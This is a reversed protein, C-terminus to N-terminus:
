PSYLRRGIEAQLAPKAQEGFVAHSSCIAGSFHVVLIHLAAIPHEGIALGVHAEIQAIRM